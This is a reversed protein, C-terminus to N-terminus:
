LLILTVWVILLFSLMLSLSSFAFAVVTNSRVISSALKVVVVLAMVVATELVVEVQGTDTM